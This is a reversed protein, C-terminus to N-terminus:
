EMEIDAEEIQILIKRDIDTLTALRNAQNELTKEFINRVFRGNGFSKDRKQYAATFLAEAKLSAAPSLKYQSQKLFLKFIALMEDAGYDKFDIYRNIRSKFGPNTEIFTEMEKSYGALIVILRKRDDEMRKILTAVAEKGYDDKNQGVLAYAEDIFLVGDLAEDVVKNVKVATQGSYEAIMGSRDTEVLHGKEILGLEKYIQALLRAVTTKGTGPNGTFVIHYSISSSKLGEQERQQQIKVFNVLTQIENKVDTLGILAHLEELAQELSKSENIDTKKINGKNATGFDAIPNHTEEYIEKLLAEEKATIDIDHKCLILAFRHLMTAYPVLLDSRMLQLLPPLSLDSKAKKQPRDGVSYDISMPNKLDWLIDIPRQLFHSKYLYIELDTFPHEIFRDKQGPLITQIALFGGFIQVDGQRKVGGKIKRVIQVMDSVVFIRILEKKTTTPEDTQVSELRELLAKDSALDNLLQAAEDAVEELLGIFAPSLKGKGRKASPVHVEAQIANSVSTNKPAANNNYKANFRDESRFLFVLADLFGLLLPVFTWSSVLYLMGLGFQGLYFRHGGIIGTFIALLTATNKNKM